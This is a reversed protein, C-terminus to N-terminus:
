RKSEPGPNGSETRPSFGPSTGGLTTVGDPIDTTGVKRDHGVPGVERLREEPSGRVSRRRGDPGSERVTRFWGKGKM